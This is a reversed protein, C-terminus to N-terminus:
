GNWMARLNHWTMEPHFWVFPVGAARAAGGDEIENDGVLVADEATVGLLALARGVVRPDPKDAGAEESTVLYEAAEDLGLAILKHIQRETTFNTVWALRVGAHRLDTLLEACGPRLTMAAFYGRWYADHLTLATRLKSCGHSQETITKFYLLRSHEAATGAVLRKVAARATEYDAASVGSAALGAAHCPAYAYATNDLDFLIARPPPM